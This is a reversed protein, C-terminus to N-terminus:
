EVGIGYHSVVWCGNGVLAVWVWIEDFYPHSIARYHAWNYSKESLFFNYWKKLAAIMENTCDPKNCSYYRYAINETFATWKYGFNIWLWNFRDLMSYYNYKWNDSSQRAHTSYNQEALHQAWTLASFNLSDNIKYPKLWLKAREQNHWSVWTSQVKDRDVNWIVEDQTVIDEKLEAVKNKFLYSLYWIMDAWEGSLKVKSFANIIKQYKNIQAITSQSWWQKEVVTMVTDIRNKIKSNVNYGAHSASLLLNFSILAIIIYYLKRM